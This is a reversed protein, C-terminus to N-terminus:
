GDAEVPLGAAATSGDRAPEGAARRGGAFGGGAAGHGVQGRAAKIHAYVCIYIYDYIM